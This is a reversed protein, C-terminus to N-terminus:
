KTSGKVFMAAVWNDKAFHEVYRLGEATAAEVMAELDQLYFGSFFISGESKLVRIYSQMDNLLVQKHINALVLDFTENAYKELALVDGHRSEIHICGNAEANEAANEAAWEEHDIAIVNKAGLKEALIALVGTGSGMDLVQSGNWANRNQLMLEIMLQTTAHHGTGFSMKPEITLVFEVKNEEPHFPARILVKDLVLIPEFYNKEWLANWNQKAIIVIEPKQLVFPAITEMAELVDEESINGAEVYAKVIGNETSFTHFPFEGLLAVVIEENAAEPAAIQAVFELYDSMIKELSGSPQM